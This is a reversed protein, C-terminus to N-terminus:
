RIDNLPFNFIVTTGKATGNEYRDEIHFRIETKQAQNYLDIREQTLAIGRSHHLQINNRKLQESFARGVGNDSVRIMLSTNEIGIAIKITGNKDGRNQIGHRIANEVFPQLIFSPILFEDTLLDDPILFEYSFINDLKVREIELYTSLFEIEKSLTIENLPTTEFLLRILRSFDSIFKSAGSLDQSIIYQYFSNLSNFIFHPNMQARLALQELSVIKQKLEMREREKKRLRSMRWWIILALMGSIFIFGPWQVWWHMWWAKKIFFTFRSVPSNTQFRDTAYLELTYEGPPLAPYSLYNQDTTHWQEDLGSLRYSYKIKGMSQFSIGSYKFLINNNNGDLILTTSTDTKNGSVIIEDLHIKCLYSQDRPGLSLFSIGEPSGAIIRNGSTYICNIDNSLLGDRTDYIRMKFQENISIRTIGKVTGIYVQDDKLFICNSIDSSLGNKENFHYIIKHDRLCYVGQERTSVWLLNYPESFAIGNIPGSLLRKTQVVNSHPHQRDILFLGDTTGTYYIGNKYYACTLRVGTNLSDILKGTKLSLRHVQGKLNATILTDGVSMFSKVGAISDMKKAKILIEIVSHHANSQMNGGPIRLLELGAKKLELKSELTKKLTDVRWLQWNNLGAILQKKYEYFHYTHVPLNDPRRKINYSAASPFYYLGRGNTCLWINGEKDTFSNNVAINNLLTDASKGSNINYLYSGTLTNIIFLSDNHLSISTRNFPLTITDTRNNRFLYLHQLHPAYYFTADPAPLANYWDSLLPHDEHRIKYASLSTHIIKLPLPNFLQKPIFFGKGSYNLPLYHLQNNTDILFLQSNDSFLINGEEDESFTKNESNIKLQQLLASNYKNYIRGNAYYCIEKKFPSIWLRGKKDTMLMNIDNGPLGEKVTYNKFTNGDFRSLGTETAIWLYGINDQTIFYVNNGALGQETSIRTYGRESAALFQYHCLLILLFVCTLSKPYFSM